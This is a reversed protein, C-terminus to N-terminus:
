NKIRENDDNLKKTYIQNDEKISMFFLVLGMVMFMDIYNDFLCILVFYLLINKYKSKKYIKEIYICLFTLGLWGIEGIIAIFSNFPYTLVASRWKIEDVFNKDYFSIYKVYNENHHPKFNNKVINNLFNDTRYSVDYTFLNAFRSGYQGLGFGVFFRAGNLENYLTGDFYKFKYNWRNDYIYKYYNNAKNYVLTKMMDTKIIPIIIYMGIVIAIIIKTILKSKYEKYIGLIPSLIVYIAVCLLLAKSDSYYLMIMALIIYILEKKLNSLKSNKGILYIIMIILWNGFLHANMFTGYNIDGPIFHRYKFLITLFIVFEVLIFKRIIKKLEIEDLCYQDMQKIIFIMIAFYCTSFVVNILTDSIIGSIISNMIIFCLFLASYTTKRKAIKKKDSILLIIIFNILALLENSMIFSSMLACISNKKNLMTAVINILFLIFMIFTSKSPFIISLEFIILYIIYIINNKSNKM